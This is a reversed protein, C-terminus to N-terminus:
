KGANEFVHELCFENAPLITKGENIELRGDELIKSDSLKGVFVYDSCAPFGPVLLKSEDIEIKYDTGNMIICSKKLESMIAGQGCCKKIRTKLIQAEGEECVLAYNSDVCYKEPSLTQPDNILYGNSMLLFTTVNTGQKLIRLTGNTCELFKPKFVWNKPQNIFNKSKPSYIKPLWKKDIGDECSIENEKNVLIRQGVPCCKPIQITKAGLTVVVGFVLLLVLLKYCM